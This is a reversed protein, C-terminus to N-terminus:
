FQRSDSLAGPVEIDSSSTKLKETTASLLSVFEILCETPDGFVPFMVATELSSYPNSINKRNKLFSGCEM